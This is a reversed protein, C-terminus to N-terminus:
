KQIIITNQIYMYQIIKIRIFKEIQYDSIAEPPGLLPNAQRASCRGEGTPAARAVPESATITNEIYM